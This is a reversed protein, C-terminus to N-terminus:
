SGREKWHSAQLSLRRRWRQPIRQVHRGALYGLYKGSTRLAAQPLLWPARRSLYALESRLFRLGEGEPKGFSQLLWHQDHHLVGIDFYRRFEQVLGYGHSHVVCSEAVYQVAMGAQLVRAAVVMDESVIVGRPFGGVRMLDETRYACYSNSTFAAKLGLRAADALTRRQSLAPYNFLRAHAEIPGADPRPLQRGYAVAVQPDAFAELLRGLAREDALVADQTLFVLLECDRCLEAAMQRTAGHDFDSAAIVRLEFGHQLAVRDSGDSSQSDVVLVRRPQVRQAYLREAAQRWLAGGNRVPVIVAIRASPRGAPAPTPGAPVRDTPM